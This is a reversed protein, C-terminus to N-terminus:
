KSLQRRGGRRRSRRVEALEAKLQALPRTPIAPIVRDFLDLIRRREDQSLQGIRASYEGIAERVVFSQPRALRAAARRLKEVTEADLTFTM